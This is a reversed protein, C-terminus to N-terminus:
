RHDRGEEGGSLTGSEGGIEPDPDLDKQTPDRKLEPKENPSFIPKNDEDYEM